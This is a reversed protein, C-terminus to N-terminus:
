AVLFNVAKKLLHQMSHKIKWLIGNIEYNVKKQEFLINKLFWASFNLYGGLPEFILTHFKDKPYIFVSVM